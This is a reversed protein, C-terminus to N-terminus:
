PADEDHAAGYRLLKRYLTKRDLGLVKSAETRNGGVAELVRLIYRKEVEDMTVLETPDNAAVVVHSSTYAAVKEPLDEVAIEEWRTLAVAREMANQLERVNGPWQYALIKEGAAHAIGKVPKRMRLSFETVFKQALILADGARARLPPLAMNLVNIRFYLDERFSKNAFAEELDTNTAAVIRVDIPIEHNGGLPRITREQLARLLKPQLSLPMDGIEDLFLTGHSAEAFLGTRAGRADTFAGRVHGFLESELLNEPVAACNIAVFPGAKRKSHDHIARAVVEKGTGSEGTILISVDAAAVRDLMARVARMTESEGILGDVRPAVGESRLRKVETRLAHISAAREIAIGLQPIAPPKTVFDFAGVRIAEIAINLKAHSTLMVVPTDPRTAVVRECLELGSMEPMEVDTLVVDFDEASAAEVAERPDQKYTFRVRPLSAILLKALDPDDDVLLVRLAESSM